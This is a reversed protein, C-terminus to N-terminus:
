NYERAYKNAAEEIAIVDFKGYLIKGLWTKRRVIGMSAVVFLLSDFSLVALLIKMLFDDM